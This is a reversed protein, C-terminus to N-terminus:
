PADSRSSPDSNDSGGGFSSQGSQSGSGFPSSGGPTFTGGSSSTGNPAFTDGSSGFSGQSSSPNNPLGTGYPTIAGSSVNGNSSGTGGGNGSGSGSGYSSGNGSGNSSGNGNGQMLGFPTVPVATRQGPIQPQRAIFVWQWYTKQDEFGSFESPFSAIQIPHAKSASHIGIISKGDISKVLIWNTKGTMPDAYVKRLHHVPNPYRPDHVLDNLTRPQAPQGAPTNNAYSLLARQFEGGVFLLEKEAMRRQYINGLQASAAAAVGIIAILILLALYAYGAQHAQPSLRPRAQLQRRRM